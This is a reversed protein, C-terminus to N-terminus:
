KLQLCKSPSRNAERKEKLEIAASYGFNASRFNEQSRTLTLIATIQDKNEANDEPSEMRNDWTDYIDLVISGLFDDHGIISKDKPGSCLHDQIAQISDEDFKIPLNQPKLTELEEIMREFEARMADVLGIKDLSNILPIAEVYKSVIDSFANAYKENLQRRYISSSTAECATMFIRKASASTMYTQQATNLSEGFNQHDIDQASLPAEFADNLRAQDIKHSELIHAYEHRLTRLLESFSLNAFYASDNKDGQLFVDSGSTIGSVGKGLHETKLASFPVGSIKSLLYLEKECFDLKQDPTYGDWNEQANLYHQNLEPNLLIEAVLREATVKHEDLVFQPIDIHYNLKDRIIPTLANRPNSESTMMALMMQQNDRLRAKPLNKLVFDVQVEVCCDIEDSIAGLNNESRLYQFAGNTEKPAPELAELDVNVDIGSGLPILALSWIRHNGDYQNHHAIVDQPSAGTINQIHHFNLLMQAQKKQLASWEESGPTCADDTALLRQLTGLTKPSAARLSLAKNFVERASFLYQDLAQDWWSMINNAHEEDSLGAILDRMAPDDSSDLVERLPIISSAEINTPSLATDEHDFPM